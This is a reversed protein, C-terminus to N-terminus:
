SLFAVLGFVWSVKIPIGMYGHRLLGFVEPQTHRVRSNSVVAGIHKFQRQPSNRDRLHRPPHRNHDYLRMPRLLSNWGVPEIVIALCSKWSHPGVNLVFARELKRSHTLPVRVTGRKKGSCRCWKTRKIPKFNVVLIALSCEQYFPRSWAGAGDCFGAIVTNSVQKEQYVLMWSM